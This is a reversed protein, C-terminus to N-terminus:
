APEDVEVGAFDDESSRPDLRQDLPHPGDGLFDARRRVEIDGLRVGGLQLVRPELLETRVPLHERREYPARPLADNASRTLPIPPTNKRLGSGSAIRAHYESCRPM